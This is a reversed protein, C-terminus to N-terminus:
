TTPEQSSLLALSKANNLIKEIKHTQDSGSLKLLVDFIICKENQLCTKGLTIDQINSARFTREQNRLNCHGSVYIYSNIKFIENIIVNRTTTNGTSDIYKLTAQCKLGTTYVEKQNDAENISSKKSAIEIRNHFGNAFAEGLIKRQESIAEKNSKNNASFERIAKWESELHQRLASTNGFLSKLKKIADDTTSPHM